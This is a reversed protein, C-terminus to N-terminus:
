FNQRTYKRYYMRHEGESGMKEGDRFVPMGIDGIKCTWQADILVNSSKLRGHSEISSNHIYEM